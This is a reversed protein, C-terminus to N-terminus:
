WAQQFASAVSSLDTSVTILDEITSIRVNNAYLAFAVDRGSKTTMYGGLGKATLMLDGNMDSQASTGTKAFIKGIAPSGPEAANALSGDVGLIPMAARYVAADKGDAMVRLLTIAADPSVRNNSSGEGDILSLTRPSIGIRRFYSGEVLLGEDTTNMGEHAAMIGLLANAHINQSV